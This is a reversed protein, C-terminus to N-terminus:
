RKRRRRRRPRTANTIRAASAKTHGQRRLAHYQAWNRVQRGPM